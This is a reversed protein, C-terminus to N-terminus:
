FLEGLFKFLIIFFDCGVLVKIEGMNCFFVGMVIIKYGFKKYYNYIKIVSKVGFDELFEYFKKDINVVYWDFICGVFLFIFIVGVEVCVM